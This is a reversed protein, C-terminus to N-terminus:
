NEMNKQLMSNGLLAYVFTTNGGEITKNPDICMFFVMSQNNWKMLVLTILMLMYTAGQSENSHQKNTKKRIPSPSKNFQTHLSPVSPSLSCSQSSPNPSQLPDKCHFLSNSHKQHYSLSQSSQSTHNNRWYCYKKGHQLCTFRERKRKRERKLWTKTGIGISEKLKWFIVVHFWTHVLSSSSLKRRSKM